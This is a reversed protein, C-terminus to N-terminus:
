SVHKKRVMPFNTRYNEIVEYENPLDCVNEKKFSCFYFFNKKTPSKHLFYKEGKRNVYEFSM